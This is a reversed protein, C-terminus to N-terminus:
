TGFTPHDGFVAACYAKALLDAAFLHRVPYSCTLVYDWPIGVARGSGSAVAPVSLRPFLVQFKGRVEPWDFSRKQGLASM